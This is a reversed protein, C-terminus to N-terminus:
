NSSNTIVNAIILYRIGKLFMNFTHMYKHQDWGSSRVGFLMSGIIHIFLDFWFLSFNLVKKHEFHQEVREMLMLIHARSRYWNMEKYELDARFLRFNLSFLQYKGGQEGQGKISGRVMADSKDIQESWFSHFLTSCQEVISRSIGNLLEFFRILVWPGWCMKDSLMRWWIYLIHVINNSSSLFSFSM